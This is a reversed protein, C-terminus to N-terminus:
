KSLEVEFSSMQSWHQLAAKLSDLSHVKFGWIEFYKLEIIPEVIPYDMEVWLLFNM